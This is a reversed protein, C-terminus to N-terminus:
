RSNPASIRSAISLVEDALNRLKPYPALGVLNEVLEGNYFVMLSPISRVQLQSVIEPRDDTDLKVVRVRGSYDRALRDIYPEFALCPGCWQATCYVLLPRDSSLLCDLDGEELYPVNTPVVSLSPTTSLTQALM